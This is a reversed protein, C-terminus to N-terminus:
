KSFNEMEVFFFNGLMGVFIYGGFVHIYIWCLSQIYLRVNYMYLLQSMFYQTASVTTDRLTMGTTKSHQTRVGERLCWPM